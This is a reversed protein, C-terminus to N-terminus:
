SLPLKNGWFLFSRVSLRFAPSNGSKGFREINFIFLVVM